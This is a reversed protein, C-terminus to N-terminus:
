CKMVNEHSFSTEGIFNKKDIARQLQRKIITVRPPKDNKNFLKMQLDDAEQVKIYRLPLKRFNKITWEYNKKNKTKQPRNCCKM